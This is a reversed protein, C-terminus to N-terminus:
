IVVSVFLVVALLRLDLHTPGTQFAEIAGAGLYGLGLALTCVIV